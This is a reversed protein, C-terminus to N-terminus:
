VMKEANQHCRTGDLVHPTENTSLVETSINHNFVVESRASIIGAFGRLEGSFSAFSVTILNMVPNLQLGALITIGDRFLVNGLTTSRYSTLQYSCLVLIILDFVMAYAEPVLSVVDCLRKDPNWKATSYRFTQAWTVIQGVFLLGLLATIWNAQHWVARTRLILILSAMFTGLADGFKAMFILQNCPVKQLPNRNIMMAFIHLLMSIRAVEYIIMPWKFKRKGSIVQWEFWLTSLVDWIAVGTLVLSSAGFVKGSEMIVAPDMWNKGM